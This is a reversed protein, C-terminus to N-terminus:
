FPELTVSEFTYIPRSQRGTFHSFHGIYRGQSGASLGHCVLKSQFQGSIREKRIIEGEFRRPRRAPAAIGLHIQFPLGPAVSQLVRREEVEPAAQVSLWPFHCSHSIPLVPGSFPCFFSFFVSSYIILSFIAVNVM